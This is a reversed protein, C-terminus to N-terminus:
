ESIKGPQLQAQAPGPRSPPLAHLALDAAVEGGQGAVVRDAIGEEDTRLFVQGLDDGIHLVKTDPHRDHVNRHAAVPGNGAAEALFAVVDDLNTFPMQPGIGLQDGPGVRQAALLRVM